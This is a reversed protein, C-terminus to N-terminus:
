MHGKIELVALNPCTSNINRVITELEATLGVSDCEDFSEIILSELSAPLVDPLTNKSGGGSEEWDLINQGRLRLKRLTTFDKFSGIFQVDVPEDVSYSWIDECLTIEALSERHKCLSGYFARADFPTYEGTSGNYEYVFSELQKPASILDPLGKEPNSYHVHLRTVNSFSESGPYRAEKIEEDEPESGEGGKEEEYDSEDAHLHETEFQGDYSTRIGGETDWWLVSVESLRRLCPSHLDQTIRQLIKRMYTSPWHVVMELEELNTLLPLLIALWPDDGADAKFPKEWAALEKRSSTAAELLPRITKDDYYTDSRHRCSIAEDGIRLIRVLSALQPNRALTYTLRSIHWARGDELELTNYVEPTLLAHFKQCCSALRLTDAPSAVHSSILLLIEHPLGSMMKYNTSKFQLRLRPRPEQLQHCSYAVIPVPKALRQRQPNYYEM